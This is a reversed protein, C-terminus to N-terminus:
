SPLSKWADLHLNALMSGLMPYEAERIADIETNYPCSMERLEQGDQSDGPSLTAVM